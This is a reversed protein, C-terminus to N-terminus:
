LRVDALVERTQTIDRRIQEILLAFSDFRVEPRLRQVFALTLPMGYLDDPLDTPPFDLLHAEIRREVGNLTPRTGVNTAAMWRWTKDPLALAAVTAYVGNAPLVLAADVQLNATPIGVTRGRQDGVAVVGTVAYERGLMANVTVLDGGQLAERVVSSRVPQGEWAVADVVDVAFDLEEGLARLTEVDGERKRGLAFDPGVVLGALNLHQKLLSVFDRAGLMGLEQTFPQIVGVQAGLQAALRLREWPTTLHLLQAQPRLVAVPHPDFTLIASNGNGALALAVARRVLAQHGRHMGDFNGITLWTPATLQADRIERFTKM